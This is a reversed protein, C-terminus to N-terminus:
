NLVVFWFPASVYFTLTKLTSGLTDTAWTPLAHILEWTAFELTISRLGRVRLLSPHDEAKLLQVNARLYGISSLTPLIDVFTKVESPTCVFSDIGTDARLGLM